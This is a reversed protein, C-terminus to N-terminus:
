AVSEPFKFGGVAQDSSVRLDGAFLSSTVFLFAFGIRGM